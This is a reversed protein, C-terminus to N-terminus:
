IIFIEYLYKFFTLKIFLIILLFITIFFSKYNFIYM